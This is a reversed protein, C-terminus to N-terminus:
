REATNVLDNKLVNVEVRGPEPKDGSVAANGLSMVRIRYVPVQHSFVLYRVVSDAMQCATSNAALGHSPSFGHIEVIYNHQDKLPGAMQDLADKASKSLVNQGDRFRIETQSTGQYQDLNGVMQEAKAVRTSAETASAHALEAKSSAESAHQDAIRTKESALRLSQQARADVSKLMGSNESTLRDLENLRDLIPGTHRQVYKKNAFPHTLLNVFNSEDGDWFDKSTPAPIPERDTASLGVSASSGNNSGAQQAAGYVCLPCLAALLRIHKRM